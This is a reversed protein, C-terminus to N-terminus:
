ESVTFTISVPNTPGAFVNACDSSPAGAYEYVLDLEYEGPEGVNFFTALGSTGDAVTTDFALAGLGADLSSTLGLEMSEGSSVPALNGALIDSFPILFYSRTSRTEVSEGDRTLSAFQINGTTIGSICVDAEGSNTLTLGLNVEEGAGYSDKDTSAKLIVNQGVSPGTDQGVNPEVDPDAGSFVLFLVVAIIVIAAIALLNKTSGLM